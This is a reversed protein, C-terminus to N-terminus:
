RLLRDASYQALTRRQMVEGVFAAADRIDEHLKPAASLRHPTVAETAM